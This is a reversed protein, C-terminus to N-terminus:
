SASHRVDRTRQQRGSIGACALGIVGPIVHLVVADTLDVPILNVAVNGDGVVLFQVGPVVGTVLGAVAAGLAISRGWWYWALCLITGLYGALNHWGNTHLIFFLHDETVDEGVGFDPNVFFGITGLIALLLGWGLLYRGAPSSREARATDTIRAEHTSM